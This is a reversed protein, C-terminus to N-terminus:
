KLNAIHGILVHYFRGDHWYDRDKLHAMKWKRVHAKPDRQTTTIIWELDNQDMIEKIWPVFNKMFGYTQNIQFYRIGYKEGIRWTMFENSPLVKLDEYGIRWEFQEGTLEEYHAVAEPFSSLKM